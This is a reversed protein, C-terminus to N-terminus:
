NLNLEGFANDPLAMLRITAQEHLMSLHREQLRKRNMVVKM